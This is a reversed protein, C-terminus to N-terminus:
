ARKGVFGDMGQLHISNICSINGCSSGSIDGSIRLICHGHRQEMIRAISMHCKRVPQARAKIPSLDYFFFVGPLQSQQPGGTNSAKFHETVSYQNSLITRNHANVYVTPVVQADDGAGDSMVVKHGGEGTSTFATALLGAHAQIKTADM